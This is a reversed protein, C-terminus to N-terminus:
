KSVSLDIFKTNVIAFITEFSTGPEFVLRDHFEDDVTFVVHWECLHTIMSCQFFYDIQINQVTSFISM